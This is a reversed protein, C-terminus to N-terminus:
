LEHADPPPLAKTPRCLLERRLLEGFTVQPITSVYMSFASGPIVRLGACRFGSLFWTHLVVIADMGCRSLFSISFSDDSSFSFDERFSSSFTGFRSVKRAPLDVQFRQLLKEVLVYRWSLDELFIHRVGNSIARNTRQRPNVESQVDQRV